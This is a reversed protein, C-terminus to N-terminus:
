RDMLITKAAATVIQATFNFNLAGARAPLSEDEHTIEPDILSRLYDQYSDRAASEIFM